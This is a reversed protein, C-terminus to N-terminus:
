GALDVVILIGLSVLMFFCGADLVNKFEVVAPLVLWATVISAFYLAGMGTALSAVESILLLWLVASGSVEGLRWGSRRAGAWPGNL